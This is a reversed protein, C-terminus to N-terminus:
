LLIFHTEVVCFYNGPGTAINEVYCTEHMPLVWHSKRESFYNGRDEVRDLPCVTSKMRYPGQLLM